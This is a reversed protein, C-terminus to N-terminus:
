SINIKFLNQYIPNSFRAISFYTLVDNAYRFKYDELGYGMDFVKLKEDQIYDLISKLLVTGPSRKKKDIDFAPIQYLFTDGIRFGIHMSLYEDDSKIYNLVMSGYEPIYLKSLSKYIDRYENLLFKSKIQQSEWRRIHLKFFEELSEEKINQQLHHVEVRTKKKLSKYDRVIGKKKSANHISDDSNRLIPNPSNSYIFSGEVEKKFWEAYFSTANHYFISENKTIESLEQFFTTYHSPDISPSNYESIRFGAPVLCEIQIKKLKLKTRRFADFGVLKDKHFVSFVLSDDVEKFANLCEYLFLPHNFFGKSLEPLTNFFDIYTTSKLINIDESFECKIM